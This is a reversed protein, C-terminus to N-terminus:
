GDVNAKLWGPVSDNVEGLDGENVEFTWRVEKCKGDAKVLLESKWGRIRHVGLQFLRNGGLSAIIWIDVPVETAISQAVLPTPALGVDDSAFEIPEDDPEFALPDHASDARGREMLDRAVRAEAERLNANAARALDELVQPDSIVHNPNARWNAEALAVRRLARLESVLAPIWGIAGPGEEGALYAAHDALAKDLDADTLEETTVNSM